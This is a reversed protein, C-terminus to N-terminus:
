QKPNPAPTAAPTKAASAPTAASPQTSSAAANKDKDALREKPGTHKTKTKKKKATDGNLGLPASQVKQAATEDSTAPAPSPLVKKVKPAKPAEPRQAYRTKTKPKTDPATITDPTTSTVNPDPLAEAMLSTTGQASGVETAPTATGAKAAEPLTERPAQGYRIKERKIKEPKGNKALV